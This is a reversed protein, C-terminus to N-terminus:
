LNLISPPTHIKIPPPCGIMKEVEVLCNQASPGQSLKSTGTDQTLINPNGHVDLSGIVGLFEPDYWAGTPLIAVGQRIDSSLVAGALCAGRDNFIRVIDGPAIGRAAADAAHLTIPARGGIKSDRSNLGFDLQSHLKDKPQNSLLHIPHRKAKSAGLWEQPEFWTAHGKCNDYGFSDIKESFIEIRGSPTSLAHAVPNARFAHLLVGPHDFDPLKWHGAEWFEEFPPMTIALETARMATQRYMLRVWDMESRSETHQERFGLSDALDAYIDYENRAQFQPPIARHMAQLYGDCKSTSFDNRELTTTCPLVIDSHRATSTWWPEHVVITEPQRWAHILRNIDQHHHFPNGGCWYILRTDPYKSSTGNYDYQEGPNLLMDSIRAVPITDSVPNPPVPLSAPRLPHQWRAGLAAVAAYGIGYGGGPLGIQGLMAALTVLMWIPQEGHEARQISWTATLLTRRSAMLRALPAIVGADCGAIAAAWEPTKPQGDTEGLLYPLFKDFGVCHSNLFSKDHLDERVLCWALALMLAVDTSPRVSIWEANLFDPVDSRLPGIYITQIGADRLLRMGDLALHASTGGSDVQANKLAFGGFSVVLSGHEAVSQWTTPEGLTDFFSGTVHPMIVEAAAYSYANVSQTHGGHMNLFRRLQSQAHHFRGASAWGYSGAFISACGHEAKTRALEGSVLGIAVDWSVPVFPDSGRNHRDGGPGHRLWGSRVMPQHIRLPHTASEAMSRGIPSPDSDREWASVGVISDADVHVNYMGWHTTTPVSGTFKAM